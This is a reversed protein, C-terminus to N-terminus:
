SLSTPATFRFVYLGAMTRSHVSVNRVPGGSGETEGMEVDLRAVLSDPVSFKVHVEVGGAGVVQADTWALALEHAAPDRWMFARAAADAVAGHPNDVVVAATALNIAPNAAVVAISSVAAGLVSTAWSVTVRTTAGDAGRDLVPLAVTVPLVSADAGDLTGQYRFLVVPAAPATPESPLTATIPVLDASLPASSAATADLVAWARPNRVRLGLPPGTPLPPTLTAQGGVLLKIIRGDIALLKLQEQVLVHAMQPPPPAAWTTTMPFTATTVTTPFAATMTPAAAAANNWTLTSFSSVGAGSAASPMMLSSAPMMSSSTALPVATTTSPWPIGSSGTNSAASTATLIAPDFGGAQGAAMSSPSTTMGTPTATGVGNSAPQATGAVARRGRARPAPAASSSSPALAGFESDAPSAGTGAMSPAASGGSGASNPGSYALVSPYTAVSTPSGWKATTPVLVPALDMQGGIPSFLGNSPSSTLPPPQFGTATGNFGVTTAASTSSTSQNSGTRMPLLPPGGLLGPPGPPAAAAAPPHQQIEIKLKGASPGGGDEDDSDSDKRALSTPAKEADAPRIAYGDADVQPAPPSGPKDDSPSAGDMVSGVVSGTRGTRSMSWQRKVPKAPKPPGDPSLMGILATVAQGATIGDLEDAVKAAHQVSAENHAKHSTNASKLFDSVQAVLDQELAQAGNVMDLCDAIWVARDKSERDRLKELKKENPKKPDNSAATYKAQADELARASKVARKQHGRLSKWGDKNLSEKLKEAKATLSPTMSAAHTAVLEQQHRFSAWPAAFVGVGDPNDVQYKAVVKLLAKGFSEYVQAVDKSFEIVSEAFHKHAVLRDALPELYISPKALRLVAQALDDPLPIPNPTERVSPPSAPPPPEHGVSPSFTFSVVIMFGLISWFYVYNVDQPNFEHHGPIRVNMGFIGAIATIPMFAAGMITIQKMSVNMNHSMKSMTLELHSKFNGNATNLADKTAALSHQLTVIHDFIDRLYVVTAPHIYRSSRHSLSKVVEEKRHLLHVLQGVRKGTRRIRRLLTENEGNVDAVQVQREIGEVAGDIGHIVPRMSEIIDDLVTYLVWDPALWVQPRGMAAKSDLAAAATAGASLGPATMLRVAVNFAHRVPELHVTVICERFLLVFVTTERMTASVSGDDVSSAAAADSPTKLALYLYHDYIESKERADDTAMDEITLPHVDFVKTLLALDVSQPATIDLWFPEVGMCTPQHPAAPDHHGSTTSTPSPDHWWGPDNDSSFSSVLNPVNSVQYDQIPVPTLLDRVMSLSEGQLLGRSASFFTFKAHPDFSMGLKASSMAMSSALPVGTASTYPDKGFVQHAFEAAASEGGALYKALMNFDVSATSTETRPPRSPPARQQALGRTEYVSM